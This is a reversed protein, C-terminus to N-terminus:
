ENDPCEYDNAFWEVVTCKPEVNNFNDIYFKNPDSDPGVSPSASPGPDAPGTDGDDGDDGGTDCDHGNGNGEGHSGHGQGNSEGHGNGHGNGNGNGRGALASTSAAVLFVISLIAILTKLRM